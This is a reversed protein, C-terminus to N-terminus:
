ENNKEGTEELHKEKPAFLIRHIDAILCELNCYDSELLDFSNGLYNISSAGENPVDEIIVRQHTKINTLDKKCYDCKIIVTEERSM